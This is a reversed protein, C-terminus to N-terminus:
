KKEWRIDSSCCDPCHDEDHKTLLEEPDGTQACNNCIWKGLGKFEAYSGRYKCECCVVLDGSRFVVDGYDSTGDDGVAEFITSGEMDFPGESLCSPCKMDALVNTNAM